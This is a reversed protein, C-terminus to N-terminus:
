IQSLAEDHFTDLIGGDHWIECNNENMVAQTLWIDQTPRKKFVITAAM